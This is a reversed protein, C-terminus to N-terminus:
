LRKWFQPKVAGKQVASCYAACEPILEELDDIITIGVKQNKLLKRARDILKRDNSVLTVNRSKEGASILVKLTPPLDTHANEETFVAPEITILNNDLLQKLATHAGHAAVPWTNEEDTAHKSKMIEDRQTDFVIMKKNNAGLVISFANFFSGYTEDIWIPTDIVVIDRLLLKFFKKELSRANRRITKKGPRHSRYMGILYLFPILLLLMLFPQFGISFITVLITVFLLSTIIGIVM